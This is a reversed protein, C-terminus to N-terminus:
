FTQTQYRNVFVTAGRGGLAVEYKTILIDTNPVQQCICYGGRGGLAVEYKTDFHRHKTGTSLYLLEGEM